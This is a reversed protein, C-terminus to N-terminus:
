NGTPISYFISIGVIIFVTGVIVYPLFGMRTKKREEARRTVYEGYNEKRTEDFQKRRFYFSSLDFAGFSNVLSLLGILFLVAGAIFAGNSYSVLATWQGAASNYIVMILLGIVPCLAFKLWYKHLYAGIVSGM